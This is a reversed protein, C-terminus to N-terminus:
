GDEDEEKKSIDKEMEEMFRKVQRETMIMRPNEDSARDYFLYWMGGNDPDILKKCIM